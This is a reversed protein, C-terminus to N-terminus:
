NASNSKFIICVPSETEITQGSFVLEGNNSDINFVQISDSDENAVILQSGTTDFTMFRPTKGLCSTNSIYRLYGTQEDVSYVTVSDHIRNSVFLFKNSPHILIASAQGEGVYYESLTSLKQRPSLKGNSIDFSYFIVSNDKENIAYVYRNNGHIAVHRTEDSERTNEYHKPELSGNEQVKFVNIGSFGVNRGQVPVFLYEKKQDLICQHAHSVGHETKGPLKVEHIPESISGDENRKLTFM